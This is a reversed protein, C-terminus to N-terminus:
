KATAAFVCVDTRVVVCLVCVAALLPVAFQGAAGCRRCLCIIMVVRPGPYVPGALVLGLRLGGRPRTNKPPGARIEGARGRAHIKLIERRYKNYKM